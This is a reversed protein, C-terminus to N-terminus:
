NMLDDLIDPVSIADANFADGFPLLGTGLPAGLARDISEKFVAINTMHSGARDELRFAAERDLGENYDGNTIASYLALMKGTKDGAFARDTTAVIITRGALFGSTGARAVAKENGSDLQVKAFDAFAKFTENYKGIDIPM